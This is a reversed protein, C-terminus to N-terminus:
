PMGTSRPTSTGFAMSSAVSRALPNATWCSSQFSPHPPLSSGATVHRAPNNAASSWYRSEPCCCNSRASAPTDRCPRPAPPPPRAGAIAPRARGRCDRDESDCDPAPRPASTVPSRRKAITRAKRVDGGREIRQQRTRRQFDPADGFAVVHRSKDDAEGIEDGFRIHLAEVIRQELSRLSRARCAPGVPTRALDLWRRRHACALADLEAARRRRRRGVAAYREFASQEHDPRESDRPEISRRSISPWGGSRSRSRSARRRSARPACRTASTVGSRPRM